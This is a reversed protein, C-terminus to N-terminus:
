QLESKDIVKLVPFGDSNTEGTFSILKNEAAGEIVPTFWNILVNLNYKLNDVESTLSDLSSSSFVNYKIEGSWNMGASLIGDTPVSVIKSLNDKQLKVYTQGIAPAEVVYLGSETIITPNNNTGGAVVKIPGIEKVDKLDYDPGVLREAPLRMNSNIDIKGGNFVAIKNALSSYDASDYDPFGNRGIIKEAWDSFNILRVYLFNCLDATLTQSVYNLKDNQISFEQLVMEGESLRIMTCTNASDNDISIIDNELVSFTNNPLYEEDTFIDKLKVFGSKTMILNKNNVHPLEVATEKSEGPTFLEFGPPLIASKDVYSFKNKIHSQDVGPIAPFHEDKDDDTIPEIVVLKSESIDVSLLENLINGVISQIIWSSESDIYYPYGPGPSIWCSGSDLLIFSKNINAVGNDTIQSIDGVILVQKENVIITDSENVGKDTDNGGTNSRLFYGFEIRGSSDFIYLGPDLSNISLPTSQSGPTVYNAGDMVNFTSETGDKHTITIKTGGSIKETSITPSFGDFNGADADSRVGDAITKASEATTKAENATTVADNASEVASNASEVANNASKIAVDANGEASLATTIDAIKTVEDKSVRYVGQEEQLSSGFMIVSFISQENNNAETVWQNKPFVYEWHEFYIDKVLSVSFASSNDNVTVNNLKINYLKSVSSGDMMLVDGKEGKGQESDFDSEFDASIGTIGLNAIRVRYDSSGNGYVFEDQPIEITLDIYNGRDDSHKCYINGNSDGIGKVYITVYEAENDPKRIIFKNTIPLEEVVAVTNPIFVIRFEDNQLNLREAGFESLNSYADNSNDCVVFNKFQESDNFLKLGNLFAKTKAENAVKSADDAVGKAENSIANAAEATTKAANATIEAGNATAVANNATDVASNATNVASDAVDVADEATKVANQATTVAQNATTNSANATHVAIDAASSATNATDLASEAITKANDTATQVSDINNQLGTKIGDVDTKNYYDSLDVVGSLVDWDTTANPGVYVINDGAKIDVNNIDKGGATKVNWVDGIEPTYGHMTSEILTEFSQITGKTRYVSSVLAQVESKSFVDIAARMQTQEAADITNNPNASLVSAGNDKFGEGAKMSVTESGDSISVGEHGVITTHGTSADFIIDLTTTKGATLVQELTDPHVTSDITDVIIDVVKGQDGGEGTNGFFHYKGDENIKGFAAQGPLLNETTPAVGSTITGVNSILKITNNAM